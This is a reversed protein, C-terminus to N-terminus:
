DTPFKVLRGDVLAYGTKVKSDYVADYLESTGNLVYQSNLSPASSISWIILRKSAPSVNVLSNRDASLKLVSNGAFDAPLATINKLTGALYQNLGKDSTTYVNGDVALSKAGALSGSQATPLYSVKPSFGSLTKVHKYIGESNLIYLNGAYSAISSGSEWTNFAVAQRTLSDGAFRYFWVYPEATLIYMGLGDSSLTTAIVKGLKSTDASSKNISKTSINVVYVASSNNEDIIYANDGNIELHNPKANKQASLSAITTVDTRVIGDLRDSLLSIKALLLEVTAPEGSQLKTQKLRNNLRSKERPPIESLKGKAQKITIKAATKDNSSAASKYDSFAAEYRIQLRDASASDLSRASIIGSVGLLIVGAIAVARRRKATALSERVKGATVYGIRQIHPKSTKWGSKATSGIRKSSAITADRLPVAAYRAAEMPTEPSGLQIESAENSRVQLAAQQPTTLSIILAAVRETSADKLLDTLENIARTPSNTSVVEQIRKIPLQHFLAPTAILLHDNDELEGSAISGFTKSPGSPKESIPATIRNVSKGRYLYAESSGTHSIHLESARQVAIVASLKGIWAANGQNVYEFLERNVIKIAAEFRALPDKAESAESYYQQGFAEIVLDAVEESQRGGAVVEIVVYFNGFDAAPEDSLPEYAYATVFSPVQKPRKAYPILKATRAILEAM